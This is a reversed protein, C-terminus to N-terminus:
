VACTRWKLLEVHSHRAAALPAAASVSPSVLNTEFDDNFRAVNRSIYVGDKTRCRFEEYRATAVLNRVAKSSVVQFM